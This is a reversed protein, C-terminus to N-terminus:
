CATGSAAESGIPSCPCRSGAMREWRHPIDMSLAILARGARKSSRWAASWVSNWCGPMPRSSCSASAARCRRRRRELASRLGTRAPQRRGPLIGGPNERRAAPEPAPRPLPRPGTRHRGAAPTRARPLHASLQFRRQRADGKPADETELRFGAPMVFGFKNTGFTVYAFDAPM